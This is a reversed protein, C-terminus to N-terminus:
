GAGVRGKPGIEKFPIPDFGAVCEGARVGFEEISLGVWSVDNASLVLNNTVTNKSLPVKWANLWQRSVCANRAIVNHKAITPEDELISALGPYKESYPPENYPVALLRDKMRWRGTGDPNVHGALALYGTDPTGRSDMRVAVQCGVFLNNEVVNDRGGGMLIGCSVREFVNGYVTEGSLLDDLYVACPLYSRPPTPGPIDHFYNHRIQFGRMTWDRGGYIAGGDRSGTCLHDLENFEVVHDNGWLFIGAYPGSHIHNHSVRNGVGEVFVGSRLTRCWRGFDHIDSNEVFLGAPVLTQRDGGQLRVGADCAYIECSEVGSAVSDRIAVAAEGINRLTCCRVVINTAGAVDVANSRCAELVLGEMAINAAGRVEVLVDALSVLSESRWPRAPPWFYLKGCARDLYWEGPADLFEPANLLRFRGGKRYGYCGHPPYTRLTHNTIDISRVREYSDAWDHTWYGHVLLDPEAAWGSPLDSISDFSFAEGVANTPVNSIKLWGNTPHSALPMAEGNFFLELAAAYLPRGMGRPEYTGFDDIGLTKLDACVIHKRALPAFRDVLDQSGLKRWTRRPIGAGGVIRVTTGPAARYVTPSDPTGSDQALLELANRRFYVGQRLQIVVPGVTDPHGARFARVADRAEELTALPRAATGNGTDTVNPAVHVILAAADHTSHSRLQMCGGAMTSLAFILAYTRLDIMRVGLRHTTM